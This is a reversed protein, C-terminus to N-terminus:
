PFRAELSPQLSRTATDLVLEGSDILRKLDASHNSLLSTLIRRDSEGEVLLALRASSLNDSLRVGLAERVDRLGSAAVAKGSRVIVNCGPNVRDVLSPSHTTLVVQNNRSIDLLIQRLRHIADPHLHSEPEEVAFIMSRGKASKQSVHRMLSMAALSKVGDGKLALLTDAGDNVQISASRSVARRVGPVISIEQVEPIFTKVTATLEAGLQDLLPRQVQEIQDLLKWYDPKDELRRLESAMLDAVISETTEASRVTPIYQIDIRSAVFKTIAAFQTQTLKSKAQGQLKLEVVNDEIGPLVALKLNKNLNLGTATRFATAESQAMSFELVIESRGDPRQQQLSVPYDRYWDYVLM